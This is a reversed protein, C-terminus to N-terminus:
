KLIQKYGRYIEGFDFERKFLKEAAPVMFALIEDIKHDKPTFKARKFRPLRRAFQRHARWREFVGCDLRISKKLYVSLSVATDLVWKHSDKKLDIGYLNITDKDHSLTYLNTFLISTMTDYINYLRSYELEKDTM